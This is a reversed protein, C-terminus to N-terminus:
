ASAGASKYGAAVKSGELSGSVLREVLMYDKNTKIDFDTRVMDDTGLLTYGQNAYAIVDYGAAKVGELEVIKARFVKEFDTGPQFLLRGNEDEALMLDTLDTPDLVLVKNIPTNVTFATPKIARLTKVIKKYTSDSAENNIVSAVFSAYSNAVSSGNLDAVISHLGRSGDFVRYDAEGTGPETRGDGLIAGTYVETKLRASLEETRFRLFEGDEDELLDILDIDLMKYLIKGKLDRHLTSIQQVAKEEGKKHGKARIAEGEGYYANAVGTRRNSRRFTGLVDAAVDNWTAFFVADLATPLVFGDGIGKEKLKATWASKIAIKNGRNEAIIRGFDAMANKSGLYGKAGTEATTAVQSPQKVLTKAVKDMTTTEKEENTNDEEAPTEEAPTEEPTEAPTEEAKPEETPTEPTEVPTEEVQKEDPTTTPTENEMEVGKTSKAELVRAEKNSGRTVLSVEIIEGGSVVKSDFNYEYDRFQISFANDLHGEEILKFMDQAYDRSSIGCEFVLENNVFTAKRVSGITKDVEWLNHDTLLPIDVNSAGEAPIADVRIEGGGKLPLRFTGIEIKEYDRDEKNSSAVFTVRHEGEVEAIKTKTLVLSKVKNM